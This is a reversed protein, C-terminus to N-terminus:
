EWCHENEQIIVSIISDIINMLKRTFYVNGSLIESERGAIMMLVPEIGGSDNSHM